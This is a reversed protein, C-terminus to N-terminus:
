SSRVGTMVLKDPKIKRVKKEILSESAGVQLLRELVEVVFEDDEGAIIPSDSLELFEINEPTLIPSNIYKILQNTNFDEKVTGWVLDVNDSLKDSPTIINASHAVESFNGYNDEYGVFVEYTQSTDVESIYHSGIREHRVIKKYEEGNKFLKIIINDVVGNNELLNKFTEERIEWYVYLTTPNKPMLVVEDVFYANPLPAKDFFIDEKSNGDYETGKDFKSKNIETEILRKRIQEETLGAFEFDIEKEFRNRRHIKSKKPLVRFLKKNPYNRFGRGARRKKRPSKIEDSFDIMEFEQFIEEKEVIEEENSIRETLIENKEINEDLNEDSKSNVYGKEKLQEVIKFRDYRLGLIIGEKTAVEILEEKSMEELYKKM